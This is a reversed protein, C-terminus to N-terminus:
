ARHRVSPAPANPRGGGRTPELMESRAAAVLAPLHGDNALRQELHRRREPGATALMAQGYAREIWHHALMAIDARLLDLGAPRHRQQVDRSFMRRREGGGFAAHKIRQDFVLVDGPQSDLVVCPLDTSKAGWRAESRNHVQDPIVDHVRRGFEDDLRRTGPIVRLAGSGATVRNLYFAFRVRPYPGSSKVDSHWANDGVFYNRHSWAYNFDEGVLAVALDHVRPDDILVSLRESQDIFPVFVSRREGDHPRGAHGGGLRAWVAEFEATVNAIESAFLGDLRLFGFTRFFPVRAELPRALDM